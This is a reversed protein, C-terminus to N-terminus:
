SKFDGRMIDRALAEQDRVTKTVKELEVIRIELAQKQKMWVQKQEAFRFYTDGLEKKVLLLKEVKRKESILANRLIFPNQEDSMQSDIELTADMDVEPAKQEELLQIRKQLKVRLPQTKKLNSKLEGIERQKQTKFVLYSRQLNILKSEAAKMRVLYEDSLARQERTEESREELSKQLAANQLEIGKEAENLEVKLQSIYRDRGKLRAQVEDERSARQRLAIIRRAFWGILGGLLAAVPILFLVNSLLYSM